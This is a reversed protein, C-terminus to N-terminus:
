RQRLLSSPVSVASILNQTDLTILVFLSLSVVEDGGRRRITLILTSNGQIQYHSAALHDRLAHHLFALRQHEPQYQPLRDNIQLKIDWITDYGRIM